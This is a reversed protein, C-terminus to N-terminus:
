NATTSRQQPQDLLARLRGHPPHNESRIRVAFGLCPCACGFDKRCRALHLNLDVGKALAEKRENAGRDLFLKLTELGSDLGIQYQGVSDVVKMLVVADESLEGPVRKPIVQNCLVLDGLVLPVEAAGIQEDRERAANRLPFDLQEHAVEPRLRGPSPKPCFSELGQHPKAANFAIGGLTEGLPKVHALQHNSGRSTAPSMSELAPSARSM